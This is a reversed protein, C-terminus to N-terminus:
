VGKEWAARVDEVAEQMSSSTGVLVAKDRDASHGPQFMFTRYTPDGQSKKVLGHPLALDGHALTVEYLAPAEKSAKQIKVVYADAKKNYRIKRM